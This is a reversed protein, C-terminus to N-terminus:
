LSDTVANSKTKTKRKNKMLPQRLRLLVSIRLAIIGCSGQPSQSYLSLSHATVEPMRGKIKKCSDCGQLAYKDSKRKKKLSHSIVTQKQLLFAEQEPFYM